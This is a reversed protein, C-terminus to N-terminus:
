ILNMQALTASYWHQPNPPCYKRAAEMTITSGYATALGRVHDRIATEWNPWSSNGWGWANHPLFCHAGKSSETNSIAPSWRPDVGYDWAAAAYATGCGAMPSGALYNDIRPAWTAVFEVKDTNWNIPDLSGGGSRANEEQAKKQAEQRAAQAEQLASAATAEEQAAEEAQRALEAQTQSLQNSLSVLRTAQDTNHSEIANLYKVTSLLDNFDKSSCILDLLGPGSSRMKYSSNIALAAKSRAEPLQQSLQALRENNQKIQDQISAVKEKSAAYAQGTEEIRRQLDSLTGETSSTAACARSPNALSLACAGALAVCTIAAVLRKARSPDALQTTPM